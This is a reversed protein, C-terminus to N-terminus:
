SRMEMTNGADPRYYRATRHTRVGPRPRSSETRASAHPSLPPHLFANRKVGKKFTYLATLLCAYVGSNRTRQHPPLSFYWLHSIGPATFKPIRHIFVKFNSSKPPRPRARTVIVVKSAHRPRTRKRGPLALFLLLGRVAGLTVRWVIELALHDEPYSGQLREERTNCCPCRWACRTAAPWPTGPTQHHRM